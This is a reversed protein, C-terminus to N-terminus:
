SGQKIRGDGGDAAMLHEYKYEPGVVRALLADIGDVDDNRILDLLGQDILAEFIPKHEEPAHAEALLRRRVAGMLGLFIGYEPGFRDQLEQRMFKAFAPSKGATSIAITLDGQRVISPLVFNCRQPQDAINCLRGAREADEHVAQNLAEEDTAGIVLFAGAQDSARYSRKKWTIRGQEALDALSDTAQPSVVTVQAGCDLLTKVKRTGVQGGGVVLCARGEIDLYVPYYRMHKAEGGGNNITLQKMGM